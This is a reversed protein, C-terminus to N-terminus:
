ASMRTALSTRPREVRSTPPLFARMRLPGRSWHTTPVPHPSSATTWSPACGPEPTPTWAISETPASFPCSVGASGDLDVLSITRLTGHEPAGGNRPTWPRVSELDGDLELLWLQDSDTILRMRFAGDEDVVVRAIGAYGHSTLTRGFAPPSDSELELVAEVCGLDPRHDVLYGNAEFWALVSDAAAGLGPRESHDREGRVLLIRESREPSVLTVTTVEPGLSRSVLSERAGGDAISGERDPLLQSVVLWTAALLTLVGLVALMGSPRDTPVPPRVPGTRRVRSRPSRSVAPPPVARQRVTRAYPPPPPVAAGVADEQMSPLDAPRVSWPDAAALVTDLDALM